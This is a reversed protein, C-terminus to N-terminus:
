LGGAEMATAYALVFAKFGALNAPPRAWGFRAPNVIPQGPTMRQLGRSYYSFLPDGCGEYWTVTCRGNTSPSTWSLLWIGMASENRLAIGGGRATM